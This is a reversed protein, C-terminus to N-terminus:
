ERRKESADSRRTHSLTSDFISADVKPRKRRYRNLSLNPTWFKLAWVKKGLTKKCGKRRPDSWLIDCLVGNMGPEEFRNTDNIDQLTRMGPGIGAHCALFKNKNEFKILGSKKLNLSKRM